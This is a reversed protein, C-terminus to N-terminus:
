GRLKFEFENLNHLSEETSYGTVLGSLNTANQDGFISAIKGLDM